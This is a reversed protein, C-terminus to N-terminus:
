AASRNGEIVLPPATYLGDIAVQRRLVDLQSEGWKFKDADTKVWAPTGVDGRFEERVRTTFYNRFNYQKFRMAERLLGRYLRLTAAPTVM